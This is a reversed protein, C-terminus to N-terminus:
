HLSELPRIRPCYTDIIEDVLEQPQIKWFEIDTVKNKTDAGLEALIRQKDIVLMMFDYIKTIDRKILEVTDVTLGSMMNRLDKILVKKKKADKESDIAEIDMKSARAWSVFQDDTYTSVAISLQSTPALKELGSKMDATIYPMTYLPCDKLEVKGDKVMHGLIFKFETKELFKYM